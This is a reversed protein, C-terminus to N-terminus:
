TSEFVNPFLERVAAAGRHLEEEAVELWEAATDWSILGAQAARVVLDSFNGARSPRLHGLPHYDITFSEAADWHPEPRRVTATLSQLPVQRKKGNWVQYRAATFSLGFEAM